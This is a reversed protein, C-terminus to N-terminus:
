MLSDLDVSGVRKRSNSSGHDREGAGIREPIRCQKPLPQLDMAATAERPANKESSLDAGSLRKRLNLIADDNNVETIQINQMHDMADDKPTRTTKVFRHLENGQHRRIKTDPCCNVIPSPVSPHLFTNERTLIPHSGDLHVFM